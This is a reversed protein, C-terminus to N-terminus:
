AALKRAAEELARELYAGYFDVTLLGVIPEGLSRGDADVVIVTPSLSVGYQGAVRAHTTPRGDFGVLAIEADIDIRRFLARDRWENQSMPVLYERLARECYPCEARDFFLLIPLRDARSTRGDAALDSALPLTVSRPVPARGGGRPTTLATPEAAPGAALTCTALALIM